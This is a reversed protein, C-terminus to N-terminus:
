TGIFRVVAVGLALSAGGIFTALHTTNKGRSRRVNGYLHMVLGMALPSGVLNVIRLSGSYVSDAHVLLSVGGIAAGLAAYTLWALYPNSARRRDTASEWGFALLIEAFLEIVLEVLVEVVIEM